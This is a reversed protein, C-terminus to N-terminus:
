REDVGCRGVDILPSRIFLSGRGEPAGRLADRTDVAETGGGRAECGRRRRGNPEAKRRRQTKEQRIITPACTVLGM